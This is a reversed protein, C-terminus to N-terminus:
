PGFDLEPKRWAAFVPCTRAYRCRTQCVATAVMARNRRKPCPLFNGGRKAIEKLVKDPERRAM